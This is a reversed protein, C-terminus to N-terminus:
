GGGVPEGDAGEGDGRRWMEEILEHRRMGLGWDPWGGEKGAAYAEYVRGVNQAPDGVGSMEDKGVRLEQVEEEGFTHLQIRVGSHVMDLMWAPNTIRIEGAAGYIVWTLGPTGPFPDGGRLHYSLLAGSALRGQLLVQDPTDKQFTTVVENGHHPDTLSVTPRQNGLISHFTSLEGLTALILNISHLFVVTMLNGGTKRETFPKRSLPIPKEGMFMAAGTWTTSLVKGIKGSAIVERLLRTVPSTQGQIGFVTRGGKEEATRLLERMQGMTAALPLETFVDKGAQVAPALLEYHKEVHTVNVVLDVDPDRALDAASDYTKTAAPLNYQQISKRASAISSNCLAVIAYHRQGQPSQLYPLHAQAAWNTGTSTTSLGILGIRIPPM